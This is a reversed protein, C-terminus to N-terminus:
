GVPGAEILEDASVVQDANLLLAALLARQKGAPVTLITEERCVFLSGLLGFKLDASEAEAPGVGPIRNRAPENESAVICMGNVDLRVVSRLVGPGRLLLLVGGPWGRM